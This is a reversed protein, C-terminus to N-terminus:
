LTWIYNYGLYNSFYM